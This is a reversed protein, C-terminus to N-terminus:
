THSLELRQLGPVSIQLSPGVDRLNSYLFKPCAVFLIKASLQLGQFDDSLEIVFIKLLGDCCEVVFQVLTEDEGPSM